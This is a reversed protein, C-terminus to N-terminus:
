STVRIADFAFPVSVRISGSWIVTLEHTGKVDKIAESELIQSVAQMPNVSWDVLLGVEHLQYKGPAM